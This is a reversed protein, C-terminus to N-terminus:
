ASLTRGCSFVGYGERSVKTRQGDCGPVDEGERDRSREDGDTAGNSDPATEDSLRAVIAPVTTRGREKATHGDDDRNNSQGHDGPIEGGKRKREDCSGQM